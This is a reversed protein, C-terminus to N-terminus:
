KFRLEEFTYERKLEGNEWVISMLDGCTTLDNHNKPIRAYVIEGDDDVITTLRGAKSRKGSDTVPDKYVDREEGNVTISCMKYAFKFTDRDHKQLLAGGMGFAINDSSIGENHLGELIKRISNYEVGDGQIVRIHDPLVKFGKDNVTSGFLEMLRKVVRIPTEVPDGSDPRVVLTGGKELILPELQKWMELAADLDYSDSVCAYIAGPKGFQGIMNRYAEVEFNKGWSTITSHESAPISFGLSEIDANYYELAYMYGQLTDTGLFNLLHAMGGVGAAEPVVTGRSGFDHLKFNISEPTGNLELYESILGKIKWSITAVNTPYWVRLLKTEFWTVLWAPGEVTFLPVSTPYINGEKVARITLPIYGQEAIEMWGDYNFIDERGLHMRSFYAARRVENVTPCKLNKLVYQFGFFKIEPAGGRAEGYAMATEADQPLQKWHSLKYSDSDFFNILLNTSNNM